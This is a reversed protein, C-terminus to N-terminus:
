KYKRVKFSIVPLLIRRRIFYVLGNKKRKLVKELLSRAAFLAEIDENSPIENAYHMAEVSKLSDCIMEKKILRLGDCARQALESITEGTKFRFGLCGLQRLIDQYYYEAQRKTSKYRKRVSKINYAKQSFIANLTLLIAILLLICSWIFATYDQKEEEEKVNPDKSNNDNLKEEEVEVNPKKDESPVKNTPEEEDIPSPDFPMWGLNEIYCEVWAYPSSKDIIQTKGNESEITRYGAALRAPIGVERAIAVMATSYYLCHGEKDNLLKLIINDSQSFPAPKDTYVFGNKTSFYNCIKYAKDYNNGKKLGIKDIVKFMESSETLLPKTYHIYQPNNEDCFSDKVDEFDALLGKIQAKVVKDDTYYILSDLSYSYGKDEGYYCVIRGLEDFLVPNATPTNETFGATHGVTFLFNSDRKITISVQKRHAIEEIANAFKENEILPSSLYLNQKDQWYGNIRYGKKFDTTWNMGNFTDFSTLKVLTTERLNTKAIVEPEIDYLNGGIYTSNTVLGLDFLTVNHKQQEKTFTNTATQIDAVIDSSFRTRYGSNMLNAVGFSGLLVAAALFTSVAVLLWKKGWLGFHNPAKPLKIRQFKEGAILPFIGVLLFPIALPNYNSFGKIYNEIIFLFALIVVAWARKTIRSLVFFLITVAFNIVTHVLYFGQESYWKSNYPMDAAWWKVFGVLSEFFGFIDGSLSVALFFVPVLIGFYIVAIWWRRTLFFAAAAAFFTQWLITPVGIRVSLQADLIICVSVAILWCSLTSFLVELWTEKSTAPKKSILNKLKDM